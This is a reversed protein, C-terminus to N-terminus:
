KVRYVNGCIKLGTVTQLNVNRYGKNIMDYVTLIGINKPDAKPASVKAKPTTLHKTVGLKGTLVREGKGSIFTVTFFKQRGSEQILQAARSRSITSCKVKPKSPKTMKSKAATVTPTVTTKAQKM